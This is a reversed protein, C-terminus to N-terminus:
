AAWPMSSVSITNLPSTMVLTSTLATTARCRSRWALAVFRWLQAPEALLAPWGVFRDVLRAGVWAQLMAGLGIALVTLPAGLALQGIALAHWANAVASGMWVAALAPRGWTLTAALAIGAAPFLPSAIGPPLALVLALRAVVVYAVFTIAFAQWARPASLWRDVAALM